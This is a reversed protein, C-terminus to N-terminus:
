LKPETYTTKLEDYTYVNGDEKTIDNIYKIGNGICYKNYITENGIKINENFFNPNTHFQQIETPTNSTSVQMHSLFM